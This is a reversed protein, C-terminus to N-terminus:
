FSENIGFYFGVAQDGVGLDLRLNVRQKVELRYGIGVTPLLQGLQLEDLRDAIAGAGLWAVMGHRRHLPRRYELQALVLQRDRYRGELYGRLAKAGGAKALHDWPVEGGNLDAKVQWALVGQARQLAHFSSFNLEVATFQSDSGLAGPYRTVDVSMLQGRSPSLPYDRSDFLLHGSIGISQSDDPFPTGSGSGDGCQPAKRCDASSFTASLGAGLLLHETIRQLWKPEFKVHTWIFEERNDERQNLDYGIGYYVDPANTLELGVVLRTTDGRLYTYNTLDIGIAGNTSVFANAGVSSVPSRGSRDAQYLGTAALGVGFELEPTYFPGPIISFDFKKSSDYGGDAGLKNLLRELASDVADDEFTDYESQTLGLQPSLAFWCGLLAPLAQGIARRRPRPLAPQPFSFV